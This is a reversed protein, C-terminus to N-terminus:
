RVDSQGESIRLWSSVQILKLYKQVLRYKRGVSFAFSEFPFPTYIQGPSRPFTIVSQMYRVKLINQCGVWSRTRPKIGSQASSSKTEKEDFWDAFNGNFIAGIFGFPLKLQKAAGVGRGRFLIWHRVFGNSELRFRALEMAWVIVGRLKKVIFIAFASQSQTPAFTEMEIDDFRVLCMDLLLEM